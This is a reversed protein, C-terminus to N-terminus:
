CTSNSKWSDDGQQPSGAFVYCPLCVEFATNGDSTRQQAAHIAVLATVVYM